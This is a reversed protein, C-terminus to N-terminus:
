KFLKFLVPFQQFDPMMETSAHLRDTSNRLFVCCVHKELAYKGPTSALSELMQM